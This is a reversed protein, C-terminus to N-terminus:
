APTLTIIPKWCGACQAAWPDIDDFEPNLFGLGNGIRNNWDQTLSNEEPTIFIPAKANDARAALDITLNGWRAEIARILPWPTGYDQKSRGPKQCPMPM